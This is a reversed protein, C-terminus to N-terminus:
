WNAISGITNKAPQQQFPTGREGVAVGPSDSDICSKRQESNGDYDCGDNCSAHDGLIIVLMIVALLMVVGMVLM